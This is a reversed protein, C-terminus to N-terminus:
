TTNAAEKAARRAIAEARFRERGKRLGELEAATRPRAAKKVRRFAAAPERVRRRPANALDVLHSYLSQTTVRVVAGDTYTHLIGRKEKVIQTTPGWNGVVQCEKRTKSASPDAAWTAKIDAAAPTDTATVVCSNPLM